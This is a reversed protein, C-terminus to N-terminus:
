LLRKQDPADFITPVAAGPGATRVFWDRLFKQVRSFDAETILQYSPVKFASKVEAHVTAENGQKKRKLQHAVIGVMDQYAKMQRTNIFDTGTLRGELALIREQLDSLQQSHDTLNTTHTQLERRVTAAEEMLQLYRQQDAPLSADMEALMDEPMIEHRFAAWAVDAFERQYRVITRRKEEDQIRNPQITGMWFPLRDLRLCIMERERSEDGYAWLMPLTVLAEAVAENERLRAVQGHTQLGMARCLAEVPVYLKRDSALAISFHEGYFHFPFQDFVRLEM